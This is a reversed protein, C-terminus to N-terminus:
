REVQMKHGYKKLLGGDYINIDAGNTLNAMTLYEWNFGTCWFKEKLLEM